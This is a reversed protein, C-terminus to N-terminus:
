QNEEVPAIVPTGATARRSSGQTTWPRGGTQPRVATVRLGAPDIFVAHAGHHLLTWRDIVRPGPCHRVPEPSLILVSRRCDEAQAERRRELAVTRGHLRYVCGLADCALRGDASSGTEPWPEAASWAGDRHLWTEASLRARRPHSLSLGGTATRVAMLKGDASVLIDPREALALSAFGAAIPVLGWWRWRGLWILLWLGGLTVAALGAGPMAPVRLMAGPLGATAHAIWVIAAVGWGMPVLALQELGLPLLPYVALAWPMVWFSTIPVAIMNSLVGYISIQQFHFLSFPTTALTAVVSTLAIGGLYLGFRGAVGAERHWRRLRPNILEYAAILAAVAGFSMQFSPGLLSDPQFLLVVLAAVALLRMSVPSRDVMIAVMMAGTMLVSRLTPVPAGVVLMYAFATALGALAAWKKIPYRLALPEVLALLARVLGFVLGAVLAIHLGSISLLHALGSARFDDMVSPEIGTQEGNLLAATVAGAPEPVLARTREDIDERLREMALLLRRWPGPDPADAVEPASIVVGVAGIGDFFAQRQFDYAGPELPPLPPHLMARLRVVAGVPPRSFKAPLRLRIMAPTREPPLKAVSVGNLLLRAGAPQSEIGILRGEVAVPGLERELMPALMTRTRLQGAVFGAAVALLAVAAALAAPRHRQWWLLGGGALLALPGSWLPPETELAFYGSIGLGFAVPLWLFWREREDGLREALAEGM